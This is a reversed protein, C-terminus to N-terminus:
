DLNKTILGENLKEYMKISTPHCYVYEIALTADNSSKIRKVRGDDDNSGTLFQQVGEQHNEQM